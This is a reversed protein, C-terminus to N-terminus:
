FFSAGSCHEPIALGWTVLILDFIKIEIGESSVCSIKVCFRREVFVRIVFKQRMSLIGRVVRETDCRDVYNAHDM